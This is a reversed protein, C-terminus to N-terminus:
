QEGRKSTNCTFLHRLHKILICSLWFQLGIRIEGTGIRIRGFYGGGAFVGDEPGSDPQPKM